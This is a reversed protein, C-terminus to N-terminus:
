GLLMDEGMFSPPKKCSFLIATVLFFFGPFSVSVGAQMHVTLVLGASSGPDPAM